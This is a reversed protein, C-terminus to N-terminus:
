FSQIPMSMDLVRMTDLADSSNQNDKKKRQICEQNCREYGVQNKAVKKIGSVEVEEIEYTTIACDQHEFKTLSGSNEKVTLGKDSFYASKETSTEFVIKNNMDFCEVKYSKKSCSLLFLCSVIFFMKM